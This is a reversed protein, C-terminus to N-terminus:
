GNNGASGPFQRQENAVLSISCGAKLGSGLSPAPSTRIEFDSTRFGALRSSAHFGFTPFLKAAGGPESKPSRIESKKRIEARPKRIQIVAMELSAKLRIGHLRCMGMVCGFGVSAQWRGKKM